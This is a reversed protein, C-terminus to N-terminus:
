EGEDGEEFSGEGLEGSGVGFPGGGGTAGEGELGGSDGGADSEEVFDGGGVDEVVGAADPADDDDPGDTVPEAVFFALEAAADHELAEGAGKEEEGGEGEGEGAGSWALKGSFRAM